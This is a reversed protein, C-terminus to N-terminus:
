FPVCGFPAGPQFLSLDYCSWGMPCLAPNADCGVASCVGQTQGPAILCVSTTASQCDSHNVGDICPSGFGVAVDGVSADPPAPLCQGQSLVYGEDCRQDPQCALTVLWLPLFCLLSRKM